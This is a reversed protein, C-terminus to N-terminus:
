PTPNSSLVELVLQNNKKNLKYKSLKEEQNLFLYLNKETKINKTLNTLFITNKLAEEIYEDENKIIHIRLMNFHYDSMLTMINQEVCFDIGKKLYISANKWDNDELHYNSLNFLALTYFKSHYDNSRFTTTNTNLFNNEINYLLDQYLQYSHEKNNCFYYHVGILNLCCYSINNFNYDKIKQLSFNPCNINLAQFAYDMSLAHDKHYDASVLAKTYLLLQLADGNAFLPLNEYEQVLNALLKGDQAKIANNLEICEIARLTTNELNNKKYFDLLDKNYINSLKYLLDATPSNKDQEIRRLQKESYGTIMAIYSQTYKNKKRLQILLNGISHKDM